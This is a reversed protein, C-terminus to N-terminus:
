ALSKTPNPDKPFTCVLSKGSEDIENCYRRLVEFRIDGIKTSTMGKLRLSRQKERFRKLGRPLADLWPEVRKQAEAWPDYRYGEYEKVKENQFWTALGEELLTAKGDAVPDLLHVSEHALQWTGQDYCCQQWPWESIHIDVVCCGNFHFGDPFNTHPPDDRNVTKKISGFVFRRDCQGFMDELQRRYRRAQQDLFEMFESHDRM